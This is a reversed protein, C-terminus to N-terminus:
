RTWSQTNSCPTSKGENVGAQGEPQPTDTSFFQALVQKTTNIVCHIRKFLNDGLERNRKIFKKDKIIEWVTSQIDFITANNM